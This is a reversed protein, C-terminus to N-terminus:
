FKVDLTIHDRFVIFISLMVKFLRVLNFNTVIWWPVEKGVVDIEVVEVQFLRSLDFYLLYKVFKVIAGIFSSM